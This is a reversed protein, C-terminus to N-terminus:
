VVGFLFELLLRGRLLYLRYRTVVTLICGDFVLSGVLAVQNLLLHAVLELRLYLM